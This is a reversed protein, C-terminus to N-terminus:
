GITPLAKIQAHAQVTKQSKPRSSKVGENKVRKESDKIKFVKTKENRL